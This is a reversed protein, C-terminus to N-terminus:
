RELRLSAPIMVADGLAIEQAEYHAIRSDIHSLFPHVGFSLQMV